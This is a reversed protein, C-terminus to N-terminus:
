ARERAAFGSKIIRNSTEQDSFGRTPARFRDPNASIESSVIKRILEAKSIQMHTAKRELAAMEHDSLSISIRNKATM